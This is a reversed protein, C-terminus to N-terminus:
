FSCWFFVIDDPHKIAIHFKRQRSRYEVFNAGLSVYLHHVPSFTGTWWIQMCSGGQWTGEIVLCANDKLWCDNLFSFSIKAALGILRTVGGRGGKKNDVSIMNPCIAEYLLNYVIRIPWRHFLTPNLRFSKNRNFDANDVASPSISADLLHDFNINLMKLGTLHYQFAFIGKHMTLTMLSEVLQFAM